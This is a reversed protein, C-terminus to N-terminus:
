SLPTISGPHPDAVAGGRAREIREIAVRDAAAATTTGDRDARDFVQTLRDGIGELRAALGVADWGLREYGALHLVGGANVVYDPAYTVGHDRLRDADWPTALQNNAAGAVVRCRLLPITEASLVAGTACPSFVDCPADFVHHAPVLTGGIASAIENARAEDVDAVSIRAGAEHLLGVLRAGVAGIGQVLVELGSVDDAGFARRVSARIGHFVGVATAEASSGSGGCAPSRGLVHPTREGVVDLDAEGTNMDAATVYTGGLAGILEGYRLLLSRREPSGPPPVTPVAIVAKGGGFDLGAVSQKMTMAQSLRLVDTLGDEPSRYAKMRTGGMSPGLVTSHVGIMMWSGSPADFRIAVHEGDWGRILEEFM